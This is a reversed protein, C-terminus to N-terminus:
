SSVSRSLQLSDSAAVRFPPLDRQSQYLLVGKSAASFDIPCRVSHQDIPCRLTSTKHDHFVAAGFVAEPHWSTWKQLLESPDLPHRAKSAPRLDPVHSQKATNISCIGTPIHLAFGLATSLLFRKPRRTEFAAQGHGILTPRQEKPCHFTASAFHHLSQQISASNVFLEKNVFLEQFRRPIKKSDEQFRRPIKKSDEQFRRPIKKSDEQFTIPM